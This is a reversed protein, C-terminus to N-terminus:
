SLHMNIFYRRVHRQMHLLLTYLYHRSNLTYSIFYRRRQSADDIRFDFLVWASVYLKQENRSLPQRCRRFEISAPPQPSFSLSFKIHTNISSLCAGFSIVFSNTALPPPASTASFRAYYRLPLRGLFISTYARLCQCLPSLKANIHSSFRM